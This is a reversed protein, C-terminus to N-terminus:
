TQCPRNPMNRSNELSFSSFCLWKFVTTTMGISQVVVQEM